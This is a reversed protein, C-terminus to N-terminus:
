STPSNSNLTQERLEAPPIRVTKGDQVIILDTGTQIATQRAQEAARRIAKQSARLDANKANSIDKHTM